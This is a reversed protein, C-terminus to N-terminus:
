AETKKASKGCQEKLKGYQDASLIGQAQKMFKARSEKTCGAKMCESQWAQIKSKQDATLNLSALNTCMAKNNSANKACCAKDGSFAPSAILMAGAVVATGIIKVMTISSVRDADRREIRLLQPPLRTAQSHPIAASVAPEVSLDVIDV